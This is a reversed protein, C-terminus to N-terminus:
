PQHDSHSPCACARQLQKAVAVLVQPLATARLRVCAEPLNELMLRVMGAGKVPSTYDRKQATVRALGDPQQAPCYRCAVVIRRKACM